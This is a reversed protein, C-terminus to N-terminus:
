NNSIASNVWDLVSGLSKLTVAPISSTNSCDYINYKGKLGPMGKIISYACESNKFIKIKEFYTQTGTARKNTFEVQVDNVIKNGIYKNFGDAWVLTKKLIDFKDEEWAVWGLSKIISESEDETLSVGNLSISGDNNQVVVLNGKARLDVIKRVEVV